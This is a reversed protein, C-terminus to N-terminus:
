KKKILRKLTSAGTIRRGTTSTTATRTTRPTTTRTTRTPTSQTTRTAATRTPTAKAPTAAQVAAIARDVSTGGTNDSTSNTRSATSRTNSSRTSTRASSSTRRDGGSNMLYKRKDKSLDIFADSAEKLKTNTTEGFAMVEITCGKAERLYTLLPIYDGDGSVIVIADVKDSMKVADISLGVDWDAKKAGSSYIQLDKIKLDFGQKTLAELFNHEEQSPSKVVYANARVLKREGVAEKLIEGFNVRSGFVNKASHYMNAVDVFVGVRQEKHRIM